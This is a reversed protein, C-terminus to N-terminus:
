AGVRDLVTIREEVERALAQVTEKLTPSKRIVRDLPIEWRRPTLSLKTLYRNSYIRTRFLLQPYTHTLIISPLSRIFRSLAREVARITEEKYRHTIRNLVIGLLYQRRNIVGFIRPLVNRIIIQAGIISLEEMNMPIIVYDTAYLAWQTIIFSEPATDILIYDYNGFMHMNWAIRRYLALIDHSPLRGEVEVEVIHNLGFPLLFLSKGNSFSVKRIKFQVDSLFEFVGDKVNLLEDVPTFFSSLHSQPDLDILLVKRGLEALGYGLLATLTTKGTGGKMNTITIIRTMRLKAKM